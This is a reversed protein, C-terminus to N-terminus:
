RTLRDYYTAQTAYAAYGGISALTVNQSPIEVLPIVPFTTGVITLARQQAAAGAASDPASTTLAGALADLAPSDYGEINGPSASLYNALIEFSASAIPADASQLVAGVTGARALRAAVGASGVSRAHVTVGIRRLDSIIAAAVEPREAATVALVTTFGHPYGARALLGRALGLDHTYTPQALGAPLPITSPVPHDAPHAFGGFAGRAIAGRDVALSVARRVLVSAFPRFRENPVLTAVTTSPLIQALLGNTHAAAQLSRWDLESTHSAVAAGLDSVRMTASPVTELALTGFAPSAGSHPNAHLLLKRAPDFESLEYVGYFALHGVLWAHASPDSHTAHAQVARSDLVGFRFDGLIALTLAGPATVNVRVRSPGLVTIPDRLAIKAVGALFRATASRALERGFSFQVDRGGLEHGYASRVGHRLEFVYDGNGLETWSSALLGNVDQPPALTASSSPRGAPRVLTSALSSELRDFAPGLEDAPDLSGPLAALLDIFVTAQSRPVAAPATSSAAGGCAALAGAALVAVAIGVGAPAYRASRGASARM